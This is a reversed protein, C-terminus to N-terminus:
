YGFCIICNEKILWNRWHQILHRSEKDGKNFYLMYTLGIGFYNLIRCIDSAVLIDSQSSSTYWLKVQGSPYVPLWSIERKVMIIERSNGRPFM